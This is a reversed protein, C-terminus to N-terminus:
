GDKREAVEGRDRLDGQCFVRFLREVDLADGRSTAVDVLDALDRITTTYSGHGHVTIRALGREPDLSLLAGAKRLLAVLRITKM